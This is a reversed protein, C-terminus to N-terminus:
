FIHSTNKVVLWTHKETDHFQKGLMCSHGSISRSNQVNKPMYAQGHINKYPFRLNQFVNIRNFFYKM